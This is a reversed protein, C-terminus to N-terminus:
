PEVREIGPLRDFGRDFSMVRGDGRLVSYAAHYADIFSITREALIDLTAQMMERGCTVAPTNILRGLAELIKKKPFKYFSRLTWYIEAVSVDSLEAKKGSVLFSEFRDAKRPDDRTLFRIVVDADILM